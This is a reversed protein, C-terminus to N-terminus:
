DAARKVAPTRARRKKGAASPRSAATSKPEGSVSQTVFFEYEPVGEHDDGEGAHMGIRSHVRKGAEEMCRDTESAGVVTPRETGATLGEAPDNQRTTM